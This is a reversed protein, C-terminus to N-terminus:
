VVLMADENSVIDIKAVGVSTEKEIEMHQSDKIVLPSEDKYESIDPATGDFKAYRHDSGGGHQMSQPEQSSHTLPKEHMPSYEERNAVKDIVAQWKAKDFTSVFKNRHAEVPGVQNENHVAEDWDNIDISTM